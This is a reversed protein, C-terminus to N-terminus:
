VRNGAEKGCGGCKVVPPGGLDTFSEEVTLEDGCYSCTGHEGLDSVETLAEIRPGIRQLESTAWKIQEELHEIREPSVHQESMEAIVREQATIKERHLDLEDRQNEVLSKLEAVEAEHADAVVPDEYDETEDAADSSSAPDAVASNGGSPPTGDPADVVLEGEVPRVIVTNTCSPCDLAGDVSQRYLELLQRLIEARSTEEQEAVTDLLDRTAEDVKTTIPVDGKCAAM